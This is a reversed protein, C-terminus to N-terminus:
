FDVNEGGQYARLRAEQMAARQDDGPLPSFLASRSCAVGGEFSIAGISAVTGPAPAVDIMPARNVMEGLTVDPRHHSAMPDRGRWGVPETPRAKRAHPADEASGILPGAQAGDCGGPELPDRGVLFEEAARDLAM